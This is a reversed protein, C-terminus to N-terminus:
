QLDGSFEQIKRIPKGMAVATVAAPEHGVDARMVALRNSESARPDRGINAPM